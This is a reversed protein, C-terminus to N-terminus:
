GAKAGRAPIDIQRGAFPNVIPGVLLDTTGALGHCCLRQEVADEAQRHARAPAIRGRMCTSSCVMFTRPLRASPEM